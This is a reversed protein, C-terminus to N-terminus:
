GRHAWSDGFEGKLNEQAVSLFKWNYSSVEFGELTVWCSDDDTKVTKIRVKGGTVNRFSSDIYYDSDIYIVDGVKPLDNIKM